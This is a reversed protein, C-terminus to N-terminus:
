TVLRSAFYLAATTVPGSGRRKLFRNVYNGSPLAHFLGPSLARSLVARHLQLLWVARLTRYSHRRMRMWHCIFLTQILILIPFVFHFLVYLLVSSRASCGLLHFPDFYLLPQLFLSPRHVSRGPLGFVEQLPQVVEVVAVRSPRSVGVVWWVGVM